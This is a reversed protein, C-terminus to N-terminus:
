IRHIVQISFTTETLIKDWDTQIVYDYCQSRLCAELDFVDAKCRQISEEIASECQKTIIKKVAEMNGEGRLLITVTVAAHGDTMEAELQTAASHITYTELSSTALQKPYNDGRLWCLGALATPSLTGRSSDKTMVVGSFGDETLIPLFATNGIGDLERLITFLDTEPITGNEEARRLREVLASTDTEELTIGSPLGIIKCAPSLRYDTMLTDLRSSFVPDHYAILELHGLFLEKGLPISASELATEISTGIGSAATGQTDFDHVKVSFSDTESLEIAQLYARDRVQTAGGCGSLMTCALISLLLAVAKYTTNM